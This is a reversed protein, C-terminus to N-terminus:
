FNSMLRSWKGAIEPMDFHLKAYREANRGATNVLDLDAVLKSLITRLGDSDQPEIVWGCQASRITEALDSDSKCVALLAQGALMASYAKSPFCVREAGERLTVLAVHARRMLRAWDDDPLPGNLVLAARSNVGIMEKLKAYGAGHAHFVMRVGPPLPSSLLNAVTVLDHAHGLNGSYLIEVEGRCSFDRPAFLSGDGGVEIVASKRARGYRNEASEKLRHGLFITADSRRLATRTCLSLVLDAVSARPTTSSLRLVDPYLDHLLHLVRLRRRAFRLATLAPLFPPATPVLIFDHSSGCTWARLLVRLPFIVWMQFRTLSKGLLNRRARYDAEAVGSVVDIRHGRRQLERALSEWMANGSLPIALIVLKTSESTHATNSMM